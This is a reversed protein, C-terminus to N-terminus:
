AESTACVDATSRRHAAALLTTITAPEQGTLTTITDTPYHLIDHLLVSDDQLAIAEPCPRQGTLVALRATLLQWAHATPNPRAVITPWHTALHGFTDAILSHATIPGVHLLLSYLACFAPLAPATSPQPQIPIPSHALQQM